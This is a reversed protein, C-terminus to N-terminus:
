EEGEPSTARGSQWRQQDTEGGLRKIAGAYIHSVASPTCDLATGAERQNMGALVADVVRRERENLKRLLREVRERNEADVAGSEPDPLRGDPLLDVLRIPDGLSDHWAVVFLSEPRSHAARLPSQDARGFEHRMWDASLYRMRGTTYTELSAGREPNYSAVVQLLYLGAFSTLESRYRRMGPQDRCFRNVAAQAIRWVSAARDRQEDTLREM